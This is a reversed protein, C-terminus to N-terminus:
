SFQHNRDLFDIMNTVVFKDGLSELEYSFTTEYADILAENRLQPLGLLSINLSFM